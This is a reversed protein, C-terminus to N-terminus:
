PRCVDRSAGTGRTQVSTTSWGGGRGTTSTSSHGTQLAQVDPTYSRAPCSRRGCGPGPRSRRRGTAARKVSLRPRNRRARLRSWYDLRKKVEREFGREPPDYFQQRGMEEPFYDQGSFGEPTDHDYAYGEGYGKRGDLPNSRQPHAETAGPQRAGEREADGGQLSTPPM